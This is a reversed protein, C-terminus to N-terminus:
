DEEEGRRELADEEEAEEDSAGGRHGKAVDANVKETQDIWESYVDIPDSLDTGPSLSLSFPVITLKRRMEGVPEHARAHKDPHQRHIECQFAVGCVRCKINGLNTQYSMKCEVTQKHCCFPCDFMTDVGARAKKM